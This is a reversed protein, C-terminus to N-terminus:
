KGMAGRRAGLVRRMEEAVRPGVLPDHIRSASIDDLLADVSRWKLRQRGRLLGRGDVLSGIKDQAEPSLRLAHLTYLFQEGSLDWAGDLGAAGETEPLRSPVGVWFKPDIIEVQSWSETAITNSVAQLWPSAVGSFSLILERKARTMTVYLKSADRYSEEEPVDHAPLVGESCNVIILTEFEYGKTQELDSFLLGSTGPDYAGNLAAVGCKEAFYEIDRASFGAFAICVTRIGQDLRNFAYTIAYAIEEELTEAALAAPAPGSFNAFRPDLFELSESEFIESYLNNQLLEYAARLIERSNRYNQQIRERSLNVIGADSLVRHKPLVSQAIDGCLFIDNPGPSVLKRVIGLETSGFDQAEDVLIHQYMPSIESEYRGLATTLGLYDVVGVATMKREWGELANLIDRRWDEPIPFRRGKRDISLYSDRKNFLTASRIWDLEERIYNEGAVGRFNLSKHIPDLVSSDYNNAWKRYYERFIEDVHEGLRWTVEEYHRAMDPEFQILLDRSLEFFSTVHIKERIEHGACAGDVLQRLLGALSRNLTLILVRGRTSAALRMARRVVVCTKGSGSVGSLQASGSYDSNVVKEQEPHLFLFWEHWATRREFAQLWAEYESSGIRLRRVDDGDQVDVIGKEDQTDLPASRGTRLDVHAQAGDVNGSLLLLLVKETFERMSEDSISAVAAKVEESDSTNDFRDLRRMISPPVDVFASDVAESPLMDLLRAATSGSWIKREPEPTYGPALVIRMDKVGLTLGRHSNLWRDVDEHDGFFIFTCTRADQVTVLRWGDGLDYKVCNKIRNEGHNTVPIGHFPNADGLSGLIEKVRKARKQPIGGALFARQLAGEFAKYQLYEIAM